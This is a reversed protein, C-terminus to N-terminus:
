LVEYGTGALGAALKQRQDITFNGQIVATEGIDATDTVDKAEKLGFGTIARIEKIANIKFYQKAAGRKIRMPGSVEGKIMMMLIQRRLSPDFADFMAEIKEDAIDGIEKNAAQMFGVAAYILESSYKM